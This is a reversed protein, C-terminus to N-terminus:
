WSIQCKNLYMAGAGDIKSIIDEVNPNIGAGTYDNPTVLQYNEM